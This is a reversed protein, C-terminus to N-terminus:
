ARRESVDILLMPDFAPNPQMPIYGRPNCVVRTGEVVYDMSEHTHGHIWLQVPPRVLRALDSAFAANLLDGEYRPHISHRHPLHHTVVVTAGAFPEQLTQELWRLEEHHLALAHEPRFKGQAGCRITRYDRMLRKAHHMAQAVQEPEDGYLEFDTWLTTGLFRVGALVVEGPDLFHIGLRAAAGSLAARTENLEAGFYEHNGAVYIVPTEAFRRRAWELGAVGVHIDGACVVVDAQAAPPNWDRFELHLDSFVRLRPM